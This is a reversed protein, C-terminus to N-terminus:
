SKVLRGCPSMGADAKYFSCEAVAPCVGAPPLLAGIFVAYLVCPGGVDFKKLWAFTAIKDTFTANQHKLTVKYIDFISILCM